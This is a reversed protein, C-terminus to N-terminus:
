YIRHYHRRAHRHRVFPRWAYVPGRTIRYRGDRLLQARSTPGLKQLQNMTAIALKSYM